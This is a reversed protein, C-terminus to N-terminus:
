IEIQLGQLAGKWVIGVWAGDYAAGAAGTAELSQRLWVTVDLLEGVADSDNCVAPFQLLPLGAAAGVALVFARVVGVFGLTVVSSSPRHGLWPERELDRRALRFVRARCQVPGMLDSGSSGLCTDGGRGELCHREAGWQVYEGGSTNVRVAPYRCGM